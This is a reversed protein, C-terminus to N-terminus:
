AQQGAPVTLEGKDVVEAGARGACFCKGSTGCCSVAACVSEPLAALATASVTWDAEPRLRWRSRSSCDRVTIPATIPILATTQALCRWLVAEGGIPQAAPMRCTRGGSTVRSQEAIPEEDGGMTEDIKCSMQM